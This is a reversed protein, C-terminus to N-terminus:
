WRVSAACLQACTSALRVCATDRAQENTFTLEGRPGRLQATADVLSYKRGAAISNRMGLHGGLVDLEDAGRPGGILV